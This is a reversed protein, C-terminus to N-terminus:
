RILSPLVTEYRVRIRVGENQWICVSGLRQRPNITESRSAMRPLMSKTSASISRYSAPTRHGTESVAGCPGTVQCRCPLFQRASGPLVSPFRLPTEVSDSCAPLRCQHTHAHILEIPHRGKIVQDEALRDPPVHDHNAITHAAPHHTILSKAPLKLVPKSNLHTLGRCITSEREQRNHTKSSTVASRRHRHILVKMQIHVRLSKVTKQFLVFLPM